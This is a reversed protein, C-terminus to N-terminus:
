KGGRYRKMLDITATYIPPDYSSRSYEMIQTVVSEEHKYEKNNPLFNYLLWKSLKGFLTSRNKNICEVQSMMHFLPSNYTLDFFNHVIYIIVNFLFLIDLLYYLPYLIWNSKLLGRSIVAWEALCHDGVMKQKGKVTWDNGFFSGRKLIRWAMHRIMKTDKLEVLCCFAGMSNDRSCTRPETWNCSEVDFGEDKWYRIFQGERIYHYVRKLQDYNNAENVIFSQYFFNTTLFNSDIANYLIPSKRQVLDGRDDAYEILSKRM